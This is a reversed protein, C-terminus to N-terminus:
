KYISCKTILLLFYKVKFKLLFVTKIEVNMPLTARFFVLANPGELTVWGFTQLSRARKRYVRFHSLIEKSKFASVLEPINYLCKFFHVINIIYKSFLPVEVSFHLM